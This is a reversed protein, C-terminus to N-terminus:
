GHWMDLYQGFSGACAWVLVSRDRYAVGFKEGMLMSSVGNHVLLM